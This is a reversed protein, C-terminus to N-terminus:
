KKIDKEILANGEPTDQDNKNLVQERYIIKLLSDEPENAVIRATLASKGMSVPRGSAYVDELTYKVIAFSALLNSEFAYIILAGFLVWITLLFLSISKFIFM